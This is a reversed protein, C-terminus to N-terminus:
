GVMAGVAYSEPRGLGTMRNLIDCAMRAEVAQGDRHPARLRDSFITKYRFFANEAWAQRHYGAEKKWRPRGRESRTTDSITQAPGLESLSSSIFYNM